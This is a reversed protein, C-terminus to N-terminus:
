ERCTIKKFLLSCISKKIENPFKEIKKPPPPTQKSMGTGSQEKM